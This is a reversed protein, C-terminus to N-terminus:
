PATWMSSGWPKGLWGAGALLTDLRRRMEGARIQLEVMEPQLLTELPTAGDQGRGGLHRAVFEIATETQALGHDLM